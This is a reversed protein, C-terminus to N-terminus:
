CAELMLKEVMKQEAKLAELINCGKNVELEKAFNEMQQALESLAMAGFQSCAGKLSHSALELQAADNNEIANEMLLINDHACNLISDIAQQFNNGFIKKLTNFATMDLQPPPNSLRSM